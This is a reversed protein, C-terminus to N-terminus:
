NRIAKEYYSLDYYRSPDTLTKRPQGYESRLALVTKIGEVDLQAKRAFGRAPDLLVDYSKAVLEPAMNPLNKQFIALAEAKHAPDYLWEIGGVYGRIFGILQEAHASAWTRRTAGVLGQYHGLVDIAASLDHYGKAQAAVEFPSLLLTGAHKREMLAQFRQLVGGARVLTYDSEALGGKELLKRLVFAYGTTLADVSLEKGKLQAFTQVEPVTVLHLFGNDGGMFAVLDPQVSVPAEGQGEMYAIPNDIATMAIDFKGEILNTLQYVSNPTPTLKVEIGNRAFLGKEQAVWIPWNFGGPFSIVDIAKGGQAAAMPPAIGLLGVALVTGAIVGTLRNMVEKRERAPRGATPHADVLWPEGALFQSDFGTRGAGNEPAPGPRGNQLM